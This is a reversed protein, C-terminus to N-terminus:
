ATALRHWAGLGAVNVWGMNAAAAAQIGVDSDEYVICSEPQCDLQQAALLFLDPAPKGQSVDEITVVTQFTEALGITALTREVNQRGGGSAVAMPVRGAYAYVVQRVPYNPQVKPLLEAFRQRKAREVPKVPLNYGFAQNIQHILEITSVGARQFYWTEPLRGGFRSVTEAWAQYHLPLTDALTGDCDFILAEFPRPPALPSTVM